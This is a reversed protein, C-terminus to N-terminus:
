ASFNRASTSDRKPKASTPPIRAPFPKSSNESVHAMCGCRTGFPVKNYGGYGDTVFYGDFGDLFRKACDGGRSPQYDFIVIQKDESAGSRYAWMYSNSTAKRGPEHLVRVETEDCHIVSGKLLVERMRARLHSFYDRHVALVWNALTARNMKLGAREWDQVQRYLPIAMVYKDYLVQAVTTASAISHKLVANQYEPPIAAKVIVAGPKSKCAACEANGAEECAACEAMGDECHRCTYTARYYEHVEVRAPIYECEKRIYERGIKTLRKQCRPCNGKGESLEFEHVTTPLGSLLEERTRNKARKHAKVEIAPSTPDKAKADAAQEAENFLSLQECDEPIDVKQKESKSGFHAKQLNLYMNNMSVLRQELYAIYEKAEAPFTSDNLRQM